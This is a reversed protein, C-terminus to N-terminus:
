QRRNKLAQLYCSIKDCFINLNGNKKFVGGFNEVTITENCFVCQIEGQKVKELLKLNALFLEVEKDYVAKLKKKEIKHIKKM